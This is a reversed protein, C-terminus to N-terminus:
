SAIALVGEAVLRRGLVARGAQDLLPSLAALETDPGDLLRQVAPRVRQPMRVRRDPTVVVLDEGDSELRVAGPGHRPRLHTRDDIAAVVDRLVGRHYGASEALQRHGAAQALEDLPQDDLWSAVLRRFREVEEAGPGSPGPLTARFRPDDAAREALAHLAAYWTRNRIGITLHLSVDTTTHARHVFGRPVYLSDGPGLAAAVLPAGDPEPSEPDGDDRVDSWHQFSLPAEFAAPFVEWHKTGHVQLALVDHTDYHVALGRAEGPSLYANAQTPHGLEAALAACFRGLPAWQTHLSQFVVTAGGRFAEIVRGPEIADDFRHRGVSRTTTYAARPLPRGERVM